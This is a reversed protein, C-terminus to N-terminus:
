SGNAAAISQAFFSELYSLVVEPMEAHPYHGADEIMRYEGGMRSAVLSAEAEPDKFDPDKTGMLVLVPVTVEDLREDVGQKSANMMGTVAQFRGPERLNARLHAKYDVFDAPKRTPYLSDMYMLWGSVRWPGAFMAWMAAKMLVPTPHDRVFPGILVSGVVFGPEKAAAWAVAAAAFSTGVLLAPGGDLHKVLALIDEGVDEPSYDAWGVSSDGHGRLDMTVVRYGARQLPGVLFRYEQRVDGLGPVMVVPTGSGGTDDYAIRGGQVSLFQTAM